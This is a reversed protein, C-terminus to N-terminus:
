SQAISFTRVTQWGILWASPWRTEDPKGPRWRRVYYSWGDAEQDASPLRAPDPLLALRAVAASLANHGVIALYIEDIDPAVDCAACASLLHERTAPNEFVGLVGAREFQFFGHAPGGGSQLRASWRTEQGAIAILLARAEDSRLGAPLLLLGPSVVCQDFDGPTV